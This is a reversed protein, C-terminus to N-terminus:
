TEDACDCPLLPVLGHRLGAPAQQLPPRDTSPSVKLRPASSERRGGLICMIIPLPGPTPSSWSGARGSASMFDLVVISLHGDGIERQRTRRTRVRGDHESSAVQPTARTYSEWGSRLTGLSQWWWKYRGVQTKQERTDAVPDGGQVSDNKEASFTTEYSM